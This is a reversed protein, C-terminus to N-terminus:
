AALGMEVLFVARVGPCGRGQSAVEPGLRARRPIVKNPSPGPPKAPISVRLSDRM